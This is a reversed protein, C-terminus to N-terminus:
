CYLCWLSTLPTTRTDNNNVKFTHNGAPYLIQDSVHGVFHFLYNRTLKRVCRIIRINNKTTLKTRTKTNVPYHSSNQGLLNIEILKLINFTYELFIPLLRSSFMLPWTVKFIFTLVLYTFGIM